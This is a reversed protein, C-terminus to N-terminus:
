KGVSTRNPIIRPTTKAIIEFIIRSFIFNGLAFTQLNESSLKLETYDGLKDLLKRALRDTRSENRVCANIYLVM